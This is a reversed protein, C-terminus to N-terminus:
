RYRALGESKAGIVHPSAFATLCITCPLTVNPLKPLPSTDPANGPEPATSMAPRASDFRQASMTRSPKHPRDDEM